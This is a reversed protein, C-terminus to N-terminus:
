RVERAVCYWAGLKDKMRFLAGERHLRACMVSINGDGAYVRGREALVAQVDRALMERDAFDVFVRMVDDRLSTM